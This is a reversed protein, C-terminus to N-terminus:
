KRGTLRLVSASGSHYQGEALVIKLKNININTLSQFESQLEETSYLMNIDKPGGSNLEIQEKSFVELIVEGGPKLFSLLKPIFSVRVEIPIHTFILGVADFYNEEYEFEDFSAIRYDIQVNNLEALKLAKKKGEESIDFAVVEWGLKAAFVANRGEGDAPLLIKGAKLVSIQEKFFKNPETGYSYETESYRNNWFEKSMKKRKIQLYDAKYHFGPNLKM